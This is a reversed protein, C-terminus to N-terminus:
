KFLFTKVVFYLMFVCICINLYLYPHKFAFVFHECAGGDFTRGTQLFHESQICVRRMDSMRFSANLVHWVMYNESYNSYESYNNNAFVFLFVFVNMLICGPQIRAYLWLTINLMSGHTIKVTIVKLAIKAMLCGGYYSELAPFSQPWGFVFLMDSM